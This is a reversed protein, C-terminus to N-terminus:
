PAMFIFGLWGDEEMLSHLHFGWSDAQALYLEKEEKLIGSTIALPAGRAREPLSKYAVAQESRIMNMVLVDPADRVCAVTGLLCHSLAPNHQLNLRAHEVAEPDIDIGLITRAGFAACALSLIGSGTGVDLVRKDGVHEAMLRSALRTTPHSLDGFGAGPALRISTQRWTPGATLGSRKLTSIPFARKLTIPTLKGSVQGILRNNWQTRKTKRPNKSESDARLLSHLAM